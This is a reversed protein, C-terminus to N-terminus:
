SGKLALERLRAVSSGQTPEANEVSSLAAHREPQASRARRPAQGRRAWALAGTVTLGHRSHRATRSEPDPGRTELSSPRRSVRLRRAGRRGPAAHGEPQAHARRRGRWTAGRVLASCAGTASTRHLPASGGTGALRGGVDGCETPFGLRTAAAVSARATPWDWPPQAIQSMDSGTVNRYQKGRLPVECQVPEPRKYLSSSPSRLAKVPSSQRYAAAAINQATSVGDNHDRERNIAGRPKRWPLSPITSPRALHSESPAQRPLTICLV